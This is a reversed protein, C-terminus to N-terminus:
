APGGGIAFLASLVLLSMLSGAIYLLRGRGPKSRLQDAILVMLPFLVLSYRAYSQTGAIVNTGRLFNVKSIFILMHLLTYIILPLRARRRILVLLLIITLLMAWSDVNFLADAPHQLIWQLNLAIGTLPNVLFVYSYTRYIEDISPLGQSQRFLLFILFGLPIFILLWTRRIIDRIRSNWDSGRERSQEFALALGVGILVMGQSRALVALIGFFVAIWWRGKAGAYFFALAMALYISESLPADFYYALPLLAAVCLTWKGLAEDQYYVKCLRYLLTLALGFALTAFIMGGLDILNPTFLSVLRIGLPALLGFVTPGPDDANYGNQALDYYHPVDWRRWVRFVAQEVPSNLAPLHDVPDTFADPPLQLSQGIALWIFAMWILLAVRHALAVGFGWKVADSWDKM